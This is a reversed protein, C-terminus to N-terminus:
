KNFINVLKRSFEGDSPYHLGAKVRCDDCKYAIEELKEKLHPYKKSLINYLLYAQYAHGAPYAPTKATDINIPNIKDTMQWPRRRNILYKFIYIINNQSMALDDLEEKSEKVYPMFANSVTENTLYFFNIDEKNRSKIKKKLIKIEDKNSPYIQITPLISIYEKYKTIYFLYIIIIFIMNKNKQDRM